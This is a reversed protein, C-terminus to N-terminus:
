MKWRQQQHFPLCPHRRRRTTWQQCAWPLAQQQEQQEQVQVLALVLALVLVLVLEPLWRQRV